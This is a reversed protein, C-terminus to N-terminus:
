LVFLPFLSIEGRKAGREKSSTKADAFFPPPPAGCRGGYTTTRRLPLIFESLNLILNLNKESLNLIFSFMIM